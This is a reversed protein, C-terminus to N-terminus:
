GYWVVPGHERWVGCVEFANELDAMNKQHQQSLAHTETAQSDKLEILATELKERRARETSVAADREDCGKKVVEGWEADQCLLVHVM